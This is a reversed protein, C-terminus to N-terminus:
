KKVVNTVKASVIHLDDTTDAAIAIASSLDTNVGNPDYTTFDIILKKSNSPDITVTKNGIDASGPCPNFVVTKLVCTFVPQRREADLDGAIIIQNAAFERRFIQLHIFDNSDFM